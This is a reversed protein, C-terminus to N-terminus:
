PIKNKKILNFWCNIFKMLKSIKALWRRGVHNIRKIGYEGCWTKRWFLLLCAISFTVHILWVLSNTSWWSTQLSSQYLDHRCHCENTLGISHNLLGLSWVQLRVNEYRPSPIFCLHRRCCCLKIWYLNYLGMWDRQGWLM